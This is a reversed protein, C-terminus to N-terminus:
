FQKALDRYIRAVEIKLQRAEDLKKRKEAPTDDGRKILLEYDTIDKM